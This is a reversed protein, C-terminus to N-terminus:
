SVLESWFGGDRGDVRHKVLRDEVRKTSCSKIWHPPYERPPQLAPGGNARFLTSESTHAWGPVLCLGEEPM